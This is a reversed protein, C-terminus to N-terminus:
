RGAGPEATARRPPPAFVGLVAVLAPIVVLGRLVGVYSGTLERGVALAIPGLATSAVGIGTVAGRIAGLHRVGYLRPFAGAELSRAAAGSAGLAMGYAVASPGPAVAPVALMAAVLLLMSTLLIWRPAIRDVLTGVLLVTSFTAITQPLFNAAAQVSTLGQEGLLDIQHFAMGTTLMGTAVTGGSLAWFMPTRLAEARTFDRATDGTAAHRDPARRALIPVGAPAGAIPEIRRGDQHQGVDEPRDIIGRRAIALLLVGVIAAMLLWTGRWGVRAIVVNTVLPQLAILSSGAATVVGIAFGRRCDFWPAVANTAVLSLAGQGLMRIGVLGLALTVLGRVGAMAALAASFGVAIATLTTRTGHDDLARGIRPLAFAGVLTGILYATSVQSRTLDLTAMMPDVFVSVGVTQGPGTLGLMLASLAVMRWGAFGPRTM